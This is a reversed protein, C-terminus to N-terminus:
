KGPVLDALKKAIDRAADEDDAAVDVFVNSKRFGIFVTGSYAKTIYAEDGLGDLRKDARVESTSLKFQLADAAEQASAGYFIQLSVGSERTGWGYLVWKDDRGILKEKGNLKWNPNKAEVIRKAKAAFSALDQGTVPSSSALSAALLLCISFVTKV